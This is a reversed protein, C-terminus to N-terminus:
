FRTENIEIKERMVKPIDVGLVDALRFLYIAVDAIEM